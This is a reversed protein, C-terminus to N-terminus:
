VFVGKTFGVLGSRPKQLGWILFPPFAHRREFVDSLATSLPPQCADFVYRLSGFGATCMILDYVCVIVDRDPVGCQGAVTAITLQGEATRQVAGGTRRDRIAPTDPLQEDLRYAKEVLDQACNGLSVYLDSDDEAAAPGACDGSPNSILLYADPEGTPLAVCGRWRCGGLGSQGQECFKVLPAGADLVVLRALDKVATALSVQTAQAHSGAPLADLGVRRGVRLLLGSNEFYVYNSRWLEPCVREPSFYPVAVAFGRKAYKQLRRAYSSGGFATDAINAGYRLARLARQTCVVKRNGPDFALCCCDVDFRQLVEAICRGLGLVVQVPPAAIVGRGYCRHLTIASTSRTVLLRACDGHKAHVSQRVIDFIHQFRKQADDAECTLFVDLDSSGGGVLAAVIAGGAIIAGPVAALGQLIGDSFKDLREYFVDFSCNVIARPALDMLFQLGLSARNLPQTSQEFVDLLGVDGITSGIECLEVERILRDEARLDGPNTEERLHHALADCGFFDCEALLEERCQETIRRNPRRNSRVYQLLHGFLKGCRDVFIFGDDDLASDFRGELLPRFFPIRGATDRTLQYRSGGVNLSLIKACDEFDHKRPPRPRKM